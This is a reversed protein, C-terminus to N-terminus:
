PIDHNITVGDYRVHIHPNFKAPHSRYDMYDLRFLFASPM